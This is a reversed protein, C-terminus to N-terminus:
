TTEVFEVKLGAEYGVRRFLEIYFGQVQGSAPDREAYPPYPAWGARITKAQKISELASATQPTQPAGCSSCILACVLLLSLIVAIRSRAIVNGRGLRKRVTTTQSM